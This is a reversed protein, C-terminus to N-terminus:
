DAATLNASAFNDETPGRGGSALHCAFLLGNQDHFAPVYGVAVVGVFLVFYAGALVRILDM